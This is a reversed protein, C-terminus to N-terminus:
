ADDIGLAHARTIAAEVTKARVGFKRAAREKAATKSLGKGLNRVYEGHMWLDRALAANKSDKPRGAPLPKDKLIELIVRQDNATLNGSEMAEILEERTPNDRRRAADAEDALRMAKRIPFVAELEDAGVDPGFTGGDVIKCDRMTLPKRESM